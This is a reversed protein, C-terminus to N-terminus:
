ELAAPEGAVDADGSAAAPPGLTYAAPADWVPEFLVPLYLAAHVGHWSVVFDNADKAPVRIELKGTDFEFFKAPAWEDGAAMQVTKYGSCGLGLCGPIIFGLPLAFMLLRKSM